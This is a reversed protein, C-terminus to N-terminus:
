RVSYGRAELCATIARLYDSRRTANQSEPVGGEPMSPDFGTETVAWRHCEYRDQAQTEASQGERPYMYFDDGTAVPSSEVREPEGRPPETVVYGPGYPRRLYYVSNAYYYPVGGYWYTAYYDPLLPIGIGVPPV